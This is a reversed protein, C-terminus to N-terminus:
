EESLSTEFTNIGPEVHCSWCNPNVDAYTHCRACFNERSTHCAMCGRTLSKPCPQEVGDVTIMVPVEEGDVQIMAPDTDGERVVADRWRNLVQMHRAKMNEAVCQGEPLQFEPEDQPPPSPRGALLPRWFPLTLVLLAIVLGVIIIPKDNM